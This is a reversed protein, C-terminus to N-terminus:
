VSIWPLLRKKDCGGDWVTCSLKRDCPTWDCNTTLGIQM